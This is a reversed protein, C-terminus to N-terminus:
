NKAAVRPEADKAAQYLVGARFLSIRHAGLFTAAAPGHTEIIKFIGPSSFESPKVVYLDAVSIRGGAVDFELPWPELLNARRLQETIAVTQPLANNFAAVAQLKMKTGPTAKGSALLIPSGIDTPQDPIAAEILHTDQEDDTDGGGVVFPYARL